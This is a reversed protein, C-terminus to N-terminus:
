LNYLKDLLEKAQTFNSNYSLAKKLYIIAKKNDNNIYEVALYYYIVIHNNETFYKLSQDYLYIKNSKNFDKILDIFSLLDINNNKIQALINYNKILNNTTLRMQKIDLNRDFNNRNRYCFANEESNISLTGVKLPLSNGMSEPPFQNTFFLGLSVDDIFDMNIKNKNKLLFKVAKKHLIIQFGQVYQLGFYKTDNIGGGLWQLNEIHSGSYWNKKIDDEPFQLYDIITSINSRVIYKYDFNNNCYEIARITKDLTGPIYSENGNIYMINDEIIIDKQQPRLTIFFYKLLPINSLYKSLLKMMRVEYEVQPCYIILNIINPLSFLQKQNYVTLSENDFFKNYLNNTINNWYFNKIFSNIDNSKKKRLLAEFMKNTLDDLDPELYYSSIDNNLYKMSSKIKYTTGNCSFDDTAGGETVITNLGCAMAELVPMNFGEGRYASVYVDAAGYLLRLQQLTFTSEVISIKNCIEDTLLDGLNLSKIYVDLPMKYLDKNYKLLLKINKNKYAVNCFAKILIDTGKNHFPAGVNLFVFDNDSINLNSRIVSRESQSLPYYIKPDIGHPVVIIKYPNLGYKILKQKCWNSPTIVWNNNETFETIKFDSGNCRYLDENLEYEFVIFTYVKKVNKNKYLKLTPTISFVIDIDQNNYNEISNLIKISAEDLGSKNNTASWSNHFYPEQQHYIHLDENKVLELLQFQNVLSFSHNIDKWGIVLLKQKSNDNTLINLLESAEKFNLNYSLSKKLYQIAKDKNINIYDAGLQYYIIIHNNETFYKLSLECLYIRDEIDYLKILNLFSLLDFDKNEINEMINNYDTHEIPQIKNSNITENINLKLLKALIQFSSGNNGIINSNALIIFDIIGEITAEMSRKINTTCKKHTDDYEPKIWSNNSNLKEPYYKKPRIIINKINEYKKETDNSDSCLFFINNNNKKTIKLIEYESLGVILDTNRIHIGYYPENIKIIFKNAENVIYDNFILSNFLDKIECEEIWKVLIPSGYHIETINDSLAKLFDEKNNYKNDEMNIILIKDKDETIENLEIIVKLNTNIFIDSFLAQCSNDKPWYILPNFNSIKSLYLGSLLCSMRNAFGGLCFIIINNKKDTM